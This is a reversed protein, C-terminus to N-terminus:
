CMYISSCGHEESTSCVDIETQRRIQCLKKLLTFDRKSHQEHGYFNQNQKSEIVAPLFQEEM